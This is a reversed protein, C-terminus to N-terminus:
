LQFPPEFGYTSGIPSVLRMRRSWEVAVLGLSFLLMFWPMLQGATFGTFATTGGTTGGTGGTGGTSGTSGGPNNAVGGITINLSDSNNAPTPDGQDFSVVSATNQLTGESAQVVVSLVVGGIENALVTPISFLQSSQRRLGSQECPSPDCSLYKLGTPLVDRLVINTADAPGDNSVSILIQITDGQNPKADNVSTQVNLDALEESITLDVSATNNTTVPDTQAATLIVTNTITPLTTSPDVTADFTATAVTPASASPAKVLTPINWTWTNGAVSASGLTPATPPQSTILGAPVADTVVVSTADTTTSPNTVTVTYTVIGGPAATTPLVSITVGLDVSNATPTFTDVNSTNNGTNSEPTASTAIIATNNIPTTLSATLSITAVFSVTTTGVPVSAIACTVAQGVNTCGSASSKFTLSADLTDTVSVGTATDPGANTVALNYTVDSGPTLTGATHNKAITLDALAAVVTTTSVPATNNVPDTDGVEVVSASNNLAGLVTAAVTINIVWTGSAAIVAPDTCTVVNVVSHDCAVGGDDSVWVGTGLNDTVVVGVPSPNTSDTNTVTITYVVNTNQRVNSGSAPASSLAVGVDIVGPAAQVPFAFITSILTALMFAAM